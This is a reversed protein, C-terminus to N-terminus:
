RRDVALRIGFAVLVAGSAMLDAACDLLVAGDRERRPRPYALLAIRLLRSM